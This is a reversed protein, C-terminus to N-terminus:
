EEQHRRQRIDRAVAAQERSEQEVSREIEYQAASGECRNIIEAKM